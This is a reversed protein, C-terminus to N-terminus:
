SNCTNTFMKLAHVSRQGIKKMKMVDETHNKIQNQKQLSKQELLKLKTLLAEWSGDEVNSAGDAEASVKDLLDRHM